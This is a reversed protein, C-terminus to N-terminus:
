RNPSYESKGIILDIVSLLWFQHINEILNYSKSNVWFNLDGIKKLNNNNKHGTLTILKGFRKKKFFKAAKVMNLSQGSSSILILMDGKECYYEIAKEIWREYGYDNSFCTILDYENFNIARIKANKTIDVSFHSSIAASGGNGAILIKNKKGLNKILKKLILIQDIVEDNILNKFNAFYATLFKKDNNM